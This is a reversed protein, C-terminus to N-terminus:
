WGFDWLFQLYLNSELMLPALGVICLPNQTDRKQETHAKQTKGFHAQLKCNLFSEGWSTSWANLNPSCTCEAVHPFRFTSIGENRCESPWILYYYSWLPVSMNSTFWIPLSCKTGRKESPITQNCPDTNKAQVDQLICIDKETSLDEYFCAYKTVDSM